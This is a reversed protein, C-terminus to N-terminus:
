SPSAAAVPRGPVFPLGITLHNADALRNLYSGVTERHILPPTLPLPWPRITVRSANRM